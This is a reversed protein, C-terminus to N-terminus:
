KLAEDKEKQLFNAAENISQTKWQLHESTLLYQVM